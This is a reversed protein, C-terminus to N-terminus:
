RRAGAAPNLGYRGELMPALGGGQGIRRGMMGEIKEVMVMIQTNGTADTTAVANARTDPGANNNVVISVGGGGGGLAHNPTVYGSAGMTVLEPGQEGVLYTKGASVPGGAARAGGFMGAIASGISGFDMGGVASALPATINRYVMMRALDALMSNVMDKFSSKGTMAFEVIADASSKGWGEVAKQLESLEGKSEEAVAKVAEGMPMLRDQADMVARAYTDWDIAGKALLDNLKSYEANLQEAPTRTSEFVRRGEDMLRKQAAEADRAAKDIEKAAKTARAAGTVIPAVLGGSPANAKTEANAAAEEWIGMVTNVSGVISTAMDQGGMQLIEWARSFEGGAVEVVAAAVSAVAKGLVDFTAAVIAGGSVLLKLGTALSRSVDEMLKSNKAADVLKDSLNQITPLMAATIQAVIGEQAKQMRTLNDNVAAAAQATEGSFVIGLERAEDTMATIGDAGANLLPILQAGSEGFLKQALASKEAGDRYSAFKGAVEKLLVDSTKLSGDANKVSLGMASFAENGNAAAANLKNIGESLKAADVGSMQAAYRLGSLAETTMGLKQAAKGTEDASNVISRMQVAFAGAGAALAGGVMAGAAKVSKVMSDMRQQSVYAAKDMASTFQAINASLSVVLEGLAAM